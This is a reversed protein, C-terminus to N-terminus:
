LTKHVVSEDMQHDVAENSLSLLYKAAAILQGERLFLADQKDGDSYSIGVMNGDTNIKLIRSDSFQDIFDEINNM